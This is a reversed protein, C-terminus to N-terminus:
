SMMTVSPLTVTYCFQLTSRLVPSAIVKRHLDQPGPTVHSGPLAMAAGGAKCAVQLQAGHVLGSRSYAERADLHM